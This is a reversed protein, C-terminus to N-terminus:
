ALVTGWEGAQRGAPTDRRRRQKKPKSNADEGELVKVEDRRTM